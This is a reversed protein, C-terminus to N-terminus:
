GQVQGQQTQGATIKTPKNFTEAETTNPFEPCFVHHSVTIKLQWNTYCM